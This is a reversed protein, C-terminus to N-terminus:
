EDMELEVSLVTSSGSFTATIPADVTRKPKASPIAQNMDIDALTEQVRQEIRAHSKVPMKDLLEKFPRHGAM